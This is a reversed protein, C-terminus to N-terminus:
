HAHSDNIADGHQVQIVRFVRRGVNIEVDDHRIAVLEDFNLTGGFLKREAGASQLFEQVKAAATDTLQNLDLPLNQFTSPNFAELNVLMCRRMIAVVFAPFTMSIREAKPSIGPHNRSARGGPIGGTSSVPAVNRALAM